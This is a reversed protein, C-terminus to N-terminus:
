LTVAFKFSSLNSSKHPTDTIKFAQDRYGNRSHKIKIDMEQISSRSIWKKFAQDPYGNRSHKIQIDMEQIHLQIDYSPTVPYWVFTYSSIM